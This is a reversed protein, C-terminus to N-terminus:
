TNLTYIRHYTANFLRLKNATNLITAAADKNPAATVGARACSLMVIGISLMVIGISVSLMVIGISMSLIVMPISLEVFM